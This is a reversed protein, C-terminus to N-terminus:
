GAPSVTIMEVAGFAPTAALLDVARGSLLAALIKLPGGHSIVICDDRLEAAFARVRAILAAGSEGGPPAFNLPAAAWRDLAARDIENWSRGEWHGFDMEQLRADVRVPRGLADALLRCRRAPSTWVCEAAFGALVDRVRAIDAVGEAHLDLDLRGYCL